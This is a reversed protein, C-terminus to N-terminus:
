HLKNKQEREQRELKLLLRRLEKSSKTEPPRLQERLKDGIMKIM